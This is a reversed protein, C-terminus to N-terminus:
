ICPILKRLQCFVILAAFICSKKSKYLFFVVKASIKCLKPVILHFFNHIGYLQLVKAFLVVFVFNILISIMAIMVAMKVSTAPIPTNRIAQVVILLLRSDADDLRSLRRKAFVPSLLHSPTAIPVTPVAAIWLLPATVTITIPKTFTPIIDSACAAVIM